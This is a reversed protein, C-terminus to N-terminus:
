LPYSWTLNFFDLGDNPRSLDAQSYHTYGLTLRAKSNPSYQWSLALRDEFQFHISLKRDGLTTGDLASVGIGAELYLPREAGTLHWQFVPSLTLATLKDDANNSNRWVNVAGEFYLKPSGIWDLLEPSLLQESTDISRLGLRAGFLQDSSYAGGIQVEEIFDAADASLSTTLSLLLTPIILKKNLM